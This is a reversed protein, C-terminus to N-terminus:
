QEALVRIEYLERRIFYSTFMLRKGNSKVFFFRQNRSQHSFKIQEGRYSYIKGRILDTAKFM